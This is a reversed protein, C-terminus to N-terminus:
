VEEYEVLAPVTRREQVPTGVLADVYFRYAAKYETVPDNSSFTVTVVSGDESPVATEVTREGGRPEGHLFARVVTGPEMKVLQKAKIVGDHPKEVIQVTFGPRVRSGTKPQFEAVIREEVVPAEPETPRKFKPMVSPSPTTSM